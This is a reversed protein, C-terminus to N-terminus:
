PGASHGCLLSAAAEGRHYWLLQQKGGKHQQRYQDRSFLLSSPSVGQEPPQKKALNPNKCAASGSSAAACSASSNEARAAPAAGWPLRPETSGPSLPPLTRAMGQGHEEGRCLEGLLPKAGWERTQQQGWCPTGRCGWSVPLLLGLGRWTCGDGAAGAGGSQCHFGWLQTGRSLWLSEGFLDPVGPGAPGPTGPAGM